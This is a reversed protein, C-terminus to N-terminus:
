VDDDGRNARVGMLVVILGVLLAVVVALGLVIPLAGM